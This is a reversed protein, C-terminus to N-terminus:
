SYLWVKFSLNVMYPNSEISKIKSQMKDIGTHGFCLIRVVVLNHPSMNFVTYNHDM